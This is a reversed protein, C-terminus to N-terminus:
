RILGGSTTAENITGTPQTENKIITGGLRASLGTNNNTGDNNSSFLISADQARIASNSKNSATCNEVKVFGGNTAYVFYAGANESLCNNVLTYNNRGITIGISTNFTELGEITVLISNQRIYLRNVEYNTAGPKDSSGRLTISGKGVFGDIYVTEDYEGADLQIIIDSEIRKKLSDVAEQITAFDKGVGVTITKNTVEAHTVTEALHSSIADANGKVTETTRGVGALADLDDQTVEGVPNSDYLLEGGVETFKDIVTKNSHEHTKEVANDINAVSSQMNTLTDAVDAKDVKGDSNSDYVSKLMDGSGEGDLGKQAFLEWWTNSTTPLTPPPNGVTPSICIWSSGANEVVDDAIYNVVSSYEGKWNVGKDGKDGKEGKDGDDGKDGKASVMGWYDNSITPPIPPSVGIPVDQFALYSYGNLSVTNNKKYSLLENYEGVYKVDDIISQANSVITDLEELNDIASKGLEIIDYLTQTINGSSDVGTYIRSAPTFIVGRGFYKDINITQGEQSPHFTIIGNQYNVKFQTESTIEEHQEIEVFGTILVRYFKDPIQTLVITNQVVQKSENLIEESVPNGSSDTNWLIIIPSKYDIAM